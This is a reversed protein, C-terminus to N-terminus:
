ILLPVFPCYLTQTRKPLGKPVTGSSGYLNAVWRVLRGLVPIKTWRAQFIYYRLILERYRRYLRYPGLSHHM